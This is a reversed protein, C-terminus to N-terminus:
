FLSSNIVGAVEQILSWSAVVSQALCTHGIGTVHTPHLVWEVREFNCSDRTRKSIYNAMTNKLKFAKLEYEQLIELTVLELYILDNYSTIKTKGEQSYKSCFFKLLVKWYMCMMCSQGVLLDYKRKLLVCKLWEISTPGCYRPHARKASIQSFYKSNWIKHLKDETSKRVKVNCNGIWVGFETAGSSWTKTLESAIEAFRACGQKDETTIDTKIKVATCRYLILKKFLDHWQWMMTYGILSRFQENDLNKELFCPM